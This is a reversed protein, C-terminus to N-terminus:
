RKRKMQQQLVKACSLFAQLSSYKFTVGLERELKSSDVVIPYSLYSVSNESIKLEPKIRFVMWFAAYLVSYPIYLIPKKMKKSIRKVTTWKRPAVNYVGSFDPNQLIKDFIPLLDDEHIFQVPCDHGIISMGCPSSLFTQVSGGTRPTPGVITCIRLMVVKLNNRLLPRLRAVEKEM